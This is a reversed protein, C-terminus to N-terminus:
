FGIPDFVRAITSLVARKTVVATTSHVNFKFIDKALDWQLGLVKTTECVAEDFTLSKMVRNEPPVSNLMSVTNSWWKNLELGACAEPCFV